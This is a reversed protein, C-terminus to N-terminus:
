RGVLVDVAEDASDVLRIVPEMARGRALSQLLPWAPVETTWYDRGLLIMPRLLAEDAAYFNRTVAQFIEQVTGAAGPTYVIGGGCLRLLTDERLANHFLKAISNAFPNPPEHGYFWTAVSISTRGLDVDALVEFAVRAWDDVGDSWRPVAELTRLARALDREDGALAGGLNAAEMSGPGGGTLVTRGESGLRHGLRAAERYAPAGRHVAHGGMVGVMTSSPIPEVLEDLADTMSNDHLMAALATGADGPSAVTTWWRHIRADLSAVYGVTLDSYLDAASYLASRYPDFPLHPLAPFILAGARHLREADGPAFRCGLFLAGRVEVARLRASFGSLDLSQIFCDAVDGTATIRADLEAVSEIEDRM